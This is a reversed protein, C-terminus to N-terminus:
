HAPHEANSPPRHHIIASPHPSTRRSSCLLLSLTPTPANTSSPKVELEHHTRTDRLCTGERGVETSMCAFSSPKRLECARICARVTVRRSVLGGAAAGDAGGVWRAAWAPWRAAVSRAAGRVALGAPAAATWSSPPRPRPRAARPSLPLPRRTPAPVILSPAPAPAGRWGVAQRGVCSSAVADEAWADGVCWCCSSVGPVCAVIPLGSPCALMSRLVSSAPWRDRQLCQRSWTAAAPRLPAPPAQYPPVARGRPLRGPTGVARRGWAGARGSCPRAAQRKGRRGWM